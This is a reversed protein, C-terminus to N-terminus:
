CPRRVKHRIAGVTDAAALGFLSAHSTHADLSAGPDSLTFFAGGYLTGAVGKIDEEAHVPSTGAALNDSILTSTFSPIATGAAKVLILTSPCTLSNRVALRQKGYWRTRPITCLAFRSGLGSLM